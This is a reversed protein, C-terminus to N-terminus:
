ADCQGPPAFLYIESRAFTLDAGLFFLPDHYVTGVFVFGNSGMDTLAANVRAGVARATTEEDVTPAGGYTIVLGARRGGLAAVARVQRQVDATAAPAGSLLGLYDVTLDVVLPHRELCPLPPVTPTPPPATKTPVGNASAVLFVVTLVLLLDTFLWGALPFIGWSPPRRSRTMM